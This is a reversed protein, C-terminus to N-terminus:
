AQQCMEMATTVDVRALNHRQETVGTEVCDVLPHDADAAKLVHQGPSGHLGHSAVVKGCAAPNSRERDQEQNQRVRQKETQHGPEVVRHQEGNADDSDHDQLVAPPLTSGLFGYAPAKRTCDM